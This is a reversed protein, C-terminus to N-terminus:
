ERRGRFYRITPPTAVAIGLVIMLTPWVWGGGILAIALAGMGVGIMWGGGVWLDVDVVRMKALAPDRAMYFRAFQRAVSVQEAEPTLGDAAREIDRALAEVTPYRDSPATQMARDIVAALPRPADSWAELLPRPPATTPLDARPHRLSGLEYLMIGLAYVDSRQDLVEGRAQEPSMYLPTGASLQDIGEPMVARLHDGAEGPLPIALGWDTVLVEGHDGLLINAPKLDRHLVGRGHAFAIAQCIQIMTRLRRALPMAEVAAPVGERLQGIWYGLSRGTARKMTFYPGLESLGLDHVPVINPHDLYAGVRAEWLFQAVMHPDDRLEPRIRKVALDRMLDGDWVQDVIGMGGRGLVGVRAFRSGGSFSPASSPGDTSPPPLQTEGLATVTSQGGLTQADDDAM